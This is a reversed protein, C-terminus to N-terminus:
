RGSVCRLVRLVVGPKGSCTARSELRIRANMIHHIVVIGDIRGGECLMMRGGGIRGRGGHIAGACGGDGGLVVGHM